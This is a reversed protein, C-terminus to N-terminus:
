QDKMDTQITCGMTSVCDGAADTILSPFNCGGVYWAWATYGMNNAHFYNLIANDYTANGCTMDGFETAIVPAKAAQNGFNNTWSGDTAGDPDSTNIYPHVAYAVNGGTLAPVNALISSYSLGGAIVINTAGTARVTNILTQMGPANWTGTNNGVNSTCTVSGGNQWTNWQAAQTSGPPYPENYLEFWVNPNNKYLTAIQQWFTVSNQDPMCQQGSATTALNGQDSWHLDLIVIMGTALAENVAAEVTAQYTNCYQAANTLWRDQDLPIRVANANWSTHMMNFDSSPIGTNQGTVTYGSCSWELSPRDVGHLLVKQGSANLISNGSVTYSVTSSGSGGGSSSSSTSFEVSKGESATSDTIVSAGSAISGDSAQSSTYYYAAARSYLIFHAGAITVLAVVVIALINRHKRNHMSIVVTKM